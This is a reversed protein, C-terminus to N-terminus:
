EVVIKYVAHTYRNYIIYVSQVPLV